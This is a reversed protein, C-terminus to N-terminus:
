FVYQANTRLNTQLHAQESFKSCRVLGERGDVTALGGGYHERKGGMELHNFVISYYM